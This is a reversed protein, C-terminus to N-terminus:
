RRLYSLREPLPINNGFKDEGYGNEALLKIDELVRKDEVFTVKLDTTMDIKGTVQLRAIEDCVQELLSIGAAPPKDEITLPHQYIILKNHEALTFIVKRTFSGINDTKENPPVLNLRIIEHAVSRRKLANIKENARFLELPSSADYEEDGLLMKVESGYHLVLKSILTSPRVHFGRCPPVGVEIRDIEIYRRLMNQCLLEACTLYQIVFYISYNCLLELLKEPEVIRKRGRVIKLATPGAHREIYHAFDRSTRLLHLVVSIHGRLIPLNKDLMETETASVFTDYLSQLNHFRLELSRLKEESIPGTIDNLVASPLVQKKPLIQKSEAALNLFSTALLSVTTSVTEIKRIALDQPLRGQLVKETYFEDHIIIDSLPLKLREAEDVLYQTAKKLIQEIILLTQETSKAFDQQVPLLHYHPLSYQIHLLEYSINSFLKITATFFRFPAWRCNNRAGYSDLLEEVQSAYSLLEGVLPRTLVKRENKHQVLFLAARLYAISREAVLQRFDEYSLVSSKM